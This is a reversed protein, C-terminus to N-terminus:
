LADPDVGQQILTQALLGARKNPEERVRPPVVIKGGVKSINGYDSLNVQKAM